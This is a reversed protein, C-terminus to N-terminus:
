EGKRIGLCLLYLVGAAIGTAWYLTEPKKAISVVNEVFSKEVDPSFTNSFSRYLAAAMSNSAISYVGDAFTVAVKRLGLSKWPEFFSLSGVTVFTAWGSAIGCFIAELADMNEEKWGIWATYCGNLFSVAAKAKLGWTGIAGTAAAVVFERLGYKQGTVKAAIFTTAVNVAAGIVTSTVMAMTIWLCGGMDARILPNNDCYAYLNKYCLSGLSVMPVVPEDASIFRRIQPDYYRSQLYYMGTESDYYYGRYRFPNQKGITDKLSGTVSLPKGWSDYTYHVVESGADDVLAIVDNQLNRVYYYDKGGTTVSVLNGASDYHYWLATQGSTYESLLLKGALHYETTVGAVVKKVRMGTHDYAYQIVKGNNVGTLKRGQNWTYTVSGKKTLNGCGDYTLATGAWGTMQDKWGPAFSGTETKVPSAPLDGTTYAYEKVETLNGGQDYTYTFTKKQVHSDERILQNLEDYQYTSTGASDRISRINGNEDYTYHLSSAGNKLTKVLGQRNNGSDQYTYTTVYAKTSGWSQEKVRGLADYKTSRAKGHGTVRTERSDKDYEYATNSGGGGSAHSVWTLNDEADYTYEYFTGKEDVVRMLRDLFDYYLRYTKGAQHATVRALNGQKDYVYSYLKQETKGTGGSYSVELRDQADYVYRVYDGNGYTVKQLPGNQAAYQYSALSQGAAETELANGFGDYSFGYTFGNHTISTLRDHTYGYTTKVTQPTGGLTVSQSVSTLRDGADYGYTLAHGRADTLKKLLDKQQDWTYSVTHGGADTVSAVHNGDGTFARTVWTGTEQSDPDVCGSKKVNGHADYELRYVVSQASTARTVNNRDDYEYTFHNGKADVVGTLNDRENYEFKRANKGADTVSILNGKDDYTYSQGYEERFLSLGDVYALNAQRCCTYSVRIGTYDKKAVYVDSLFQWDLLDTSFNTYHLDETGDTCLFVAEVGFRRDKDEGTDPLAHGKGWANVLYTDGKKGTLDLVRSLRKEQTPMGQFRYLHEELGEVKEPVAATGVRDYVPATEVTLNSPPLYYFSSGKLVAYWREGNDKCVVGRLSFPTGAAALGSKGATLSPEEYYYDAERLTGKADNRAMRAVADAPLYGWYRNKDVLLGVKLWNRGTSDQAGSAIALSTGRPLYQLVPDASTGPSRRLIQGACAVAGAMVTTSGSVYPILASYILYGWQGAATKVRYWQKGDSGRVCAAASVHSGAAVQVLATNGTGPGSYLVSAATVLFAGQIPAYCTGGAALLGDEACGTGTFGETTGLRFDGNDVLNVRNATTGPEMQAMDGYFTGAAHYFTVYVRVSTEATDAPVTFTVQLRLFDRASREVYESYANQYKGDKDKWRARLFCRGNSARSTMTGKVYMSFTYTEGAKVAVDQRWSAYGDTATCSLELSKTGVLVHATDTNVGAKWSGSGAQGESGWAIGKAQIIPDKLMQIINSQLKTENELKNVRNGTRGYKGSAGHGFQDQITLLNGGHNFRYTEKRGKCDTFTTANDGYELELFDGRANGGYQTVKAVRHPMASYGYEVRYGDPAKVSSLLREATYTYASVMGDPDKVSTLCGNTYTLVTKRGAPDQIASLLGPKGSGDKEYLLAATRGAGDTVGTIRGDQYQISLVNGNPDEARCLCGDAGFVLLNKEKDKVTYPEEDGEKVTLTLELGSEDKWEKKETDYYFYHITGDGDTHRYYETDGIKVKGMTQHYNLRFGYGYGLDTGADNTNYVLSLSLPMRNGGTSVTPRVLVLNGNYDNVHVTGARGAEQSHYSWYDELGSYNVYSIDIRPRMDQYGDHCDASLFETYGGLELEDKLMLGYNSGERYWRKVLRTIDLTVYKQKDGTYQIADEVTEDYLPRNHWNLTTDSWDQLVRHVRITRSQWDEALSVLVLRANVVMDGSQIDPLQFKLYSRQINDGGMTKLFLGQRYNTGANLSDVHADCIEGAKKSTTIVPDVTVPFRRGEQSLWRGDLSLGVQHCGPAEERLSLRLGESRYGAADRMCPATLTFVEEEGHFFGIRNHELRPTLGETRCTYTFTEPCGPGTLILDEKVQRGPVRVRASVGPLIEPYTIERGDGAQAQVAAAGALSWSLGYGGLYLSSWVGEGATLPFAAQFDGKRNVYQKQGGPSVSARRAGESPSKRVEEPRLTDEMVKWTDGERYHIPDLYIEKTFSHDQNEYVRSCATRLGTLERRDTNKRTNYM